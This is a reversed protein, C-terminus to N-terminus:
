GRCGSESWDIGGSGGAALILTILAQVDKWDVLTDKNFDYAENFGAVGAQLRYTLRMAAIAGAVEESGITTDKDTDVVAFVRHMLQYNIRFLHWVPAFFAMDGFDIRNNEEVDFKSVAEWAPNLSGDAFFKKTGLARQFGIYSLLAEYVSIEGNGDTDMAFFVNAFARPGGYALVDMLIQEDAHDIVGNGDFDWRADYGKEGESTGKIRTFQGVANLVDEMSVKMDGGAILTYVHKALRREENAELVPILVALDFHNVAKDGNFDFKAQYEKDGENKFRTAGFGSLGRVTEEFDIDGDRNMDFADFIKYPAILANGTFNYLYYSIVRADAENVWGDNNADLVKGNVLNALYTEIEGATRGANPSVAGEVLEEGRWGMIYRLIIIGDSHADSVGNGDIDLMERISDLYAKIEEASLPVDRGESLANRFQMYEAWDVRGDGNLDFREDAKERVAKMLKAFAYSFDEDSLTMINRVTLEDSVTVYGDGELADQARSIDFWAAKKLREDEPTMFNTAHSRIVVETMWRIEAHTLPVDRGESLANRFQMYEAWDVRGDGNLDFREDAKERVAKMLKAFAYSFDEDSLTMINRVTLEDSVTVYGDGELADQARSIDFWAAKRSGRM